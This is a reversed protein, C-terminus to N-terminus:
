IPIVLATEISKSDLVVIRERFRFVGDQAVLRDRYECSAFLASPADNITRIVQCNARVSIVGDDSEGFTIGSIFHRYRHSSFLNANRISKVRDEIMGRGSCHIQAFPLGREQNFRSVIKYVGDVTFFDPLEELLDDDIVRAVTLILNEIRRFMTENPNLRDVVM